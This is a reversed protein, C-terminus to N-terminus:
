TSIMKQKEREIIERITTPNSGTLKNYSDSIKPPKQFRPLFHLITMILAFGSELGNKKKKFYFSIPNIKNFSIKIGTIESMIETVEDFNKNEGVTIEYVMNKHNQFSEILVSIAEGINEVDIWIFKAKGSPLTISHSNRIEPLLTTTINQM